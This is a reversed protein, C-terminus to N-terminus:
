TTIQPSLSYCNKPWDPYGEFHLWVVIPTDSRSTIKGAFHLHGCSKGSYQTLLSYYFQNKTDILM